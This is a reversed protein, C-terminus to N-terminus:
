PVYKEGYGAMRAVVLISIFHQAVYICALAAYLFFFTTNIALHVWFAARSCWM